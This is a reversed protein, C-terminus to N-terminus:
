RIGELEKKRAEGAAIVEPYERMDTTERLRRDVMLTLTHLCKARRFVPLFDEQTRHQGGAQKARAEGVRHFTVTTLKRDAQLQKAVAAAAADDCLPKQCITGGIHRFEYLTAPM